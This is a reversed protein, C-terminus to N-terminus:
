AQKIGNNQLSNNMFQNLYQLGTGHKCTKTTQGERITGIHICNALLKAEFRPRSCQISNKALVIYPSRIYLHLVQYCRRPFSKQQQKSFWSAIQQLFTLKPAQSLNVHMSLTFVIKGISGAISSHFHIFHLLVPVESRVREFRIKSIHYRLFLYLLSKLRIYLWYNQTSKWKM